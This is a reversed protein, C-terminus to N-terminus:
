RLSHPIEESTPARVASLFRQECAGFKKYNRQAVQLSVANAGGTSSPDEFQVLDDEWFCVPCIEFSGRMPESM